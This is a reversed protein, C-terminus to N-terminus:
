RSTELLYDLAKKLVEPDDRMLGLSKNCNDCLLGRIKGTTHCHDVCLRTQTKNNTNESGCIKCRNDQDLVMKDYEEVTMGYAQKLKSSKVARPNEKHWKRSYACIKNKNLKYYEHRYSAECSRCANRLGDKMGKHKIFNDLGLIQHCKKCEKEM